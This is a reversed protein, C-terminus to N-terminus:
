QVIRHRMESFEVLGDKHLVAYPKDYSTITIEGGELGFKAQFYEDLIRRLEAIDLDFNGIM